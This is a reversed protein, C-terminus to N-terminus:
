KRSNKKPQTKYVNWGAERTVLSVTVSTPDRLTQAFKMKAAFIQSVSTWMKVGGKQWKSAVKVHWAAVIVQVTVATVYCGNCKTDCAVCSFTDDFDMKYYGHSCVTCNTHQYGRHCQCQGDGGRTGSGGCKGHGSCVREQWKLCTACGPGYSGESCCLEVKDVCFSEFLAVEKDGRWWEELTEENEELITLCGFNGKECVKELIEIFRLESDAYTKLKLEEWDVDGGYFGGDMTAAVGRHFDEVLVRCDECQPKTDSHPVLLILIALITRSLM